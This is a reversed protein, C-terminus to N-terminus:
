GAQSWSARAGSHGIRIVQVTTGLTAVLAVVALSVVAYRPFPGAIVRSRLLSGLRDSSSEPLADAALPSRVESLRLVFLGAAAAALLLVWPFLGEAMQTHEHVLATDAVRGQLYEGSSTTIPVLVVAAAALALPLFGAWARFRPWVAALGVALAASPVVVVTAHVVLPHLPLGFVTNFL